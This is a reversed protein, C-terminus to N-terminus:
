AVELQRAVPSLAVPPEHNRLELYEWLALIWTLRLGRLKTGTLECLAAEADLEGVAAFRCLASQEGPHICAAILRAKEESIFADETDPHLRRRAREEQEIRCLQSRVEEQITFTM